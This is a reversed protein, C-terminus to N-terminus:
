NPPGSFEYHGITVVLPSIITDVEDLPQSLNMFTDNIYSNGGQSQADVIGTTGGNFTCDKVTSSNVKQLYVGASGQISDTYFTLHSITIDSAYNSFGSIEAFVGFVFNRLIGNRITIPYANSPEIPGNIHGIGIGVSTNTGTGTLTFGNLDLIVSGSTSTSIQIAENVGAPVTLDGKLVYTGPTTIQFPLTTIVTKPVAYAPIALSACVLLFLGTHKQM